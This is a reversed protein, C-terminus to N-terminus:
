RWRLSSPMVIVADCGCTAEGTVATQLMVARSAGARLLQEIMAVITAVNGALRALEAAQGSPASAMETPDGETADTPAHGGGMPGITAAEVGLWSGDAIAQPVEISVDAM